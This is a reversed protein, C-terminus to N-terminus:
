QTLNDMVGKGAHYWSDDMRVWRETITVPYEFPKAGPAKAVPVVSLEVDAVDELRLRISLLDFSKYTLAPKSNLEVYKTVSMGNIRSVYEYRYAKEFERDIKHKWYIMVTQKLLEEDSVQKVAEKTACGYFFFLIFFVIVGQYIFRKM